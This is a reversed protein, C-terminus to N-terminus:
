SNMGVTTIESFNIRNEDLTEFTIKDGPFSNNLARTLNEWTAQAVMLKLLSIERDLKVKM